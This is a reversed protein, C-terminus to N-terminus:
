PKSLTIEKLDPRPYDILPSESVPPPLLFSTKPIITQPMSPNSWELSVAPSGSKSHYELRIDYTRAAQLAIIGFNETSRPTDWDNIIQKGDIWLRVGGDAFTYFTYKETQLPQLRGEWRVSFTNPNVSSNPAAVDWHFNIEPDIRSFIVPGNLNLTNFYRGALGLSLPYLRNAPIIQKRQSDSSWLLHAAAQGGGQFYEMVISYRQGARLRITGRNETLPHTEFDSILREGDVWLRVGDDTSAYFTYEESYLPEVEGSWRVSVSNDNLNHHPSGTPWLFDVTPDIREVVAPGLLNWTNFYEAFLGGPFADIDAPAIRRSSITEPSPSPTTASRTAKRLTVFGLGLLILVATAAWKWPRSPIRTSVTQKATTLSAKKQQLAYELHEILEEYSQFRQDPESALMHELCFLTAASISPVFTQISVPKNDLRKMAAELPSAGDFPPRGAMAHYLTAGLSYIDSRHDENANRLREPPIYYPTGVIEDKASEEVTILQSSIGFDAIKAAHDETFLINAPKIDRHLIGAQLVSQLGRAVHLGARLAHIESVNGHRDIWHQLSGGPLYEMALYFHGHEIGTSYIRVVEPASISAMASAEAELRQTDIASATIQDRLLKLAVIRGLERDTARYVVGMGGVGIAAQLTFAGFERLVSFGKGCNLCSVPELPQAKSIDVPTGCGPCFECGTDNNRRLVGTRVRTPRNFAKIPPSM